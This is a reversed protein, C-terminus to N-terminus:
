PMHHFGDLSSPVALNGFNQIEKGLRSSDDREYMPTYRGSETMPGGLLPGVIRVRMM